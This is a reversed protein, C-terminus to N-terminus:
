SVQRPRQRDQERERECRVRMYTLLQERGQEGVLVLYIGLDM